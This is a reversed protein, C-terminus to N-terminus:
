ELDLSFRNLAAARRPGYTKDVHAQSVRRVVLDGAALRLLMGANDVYVLSPRDILGERVEFAHATQQTGPLNQKGLPTVILPVLARTDTNYIVFAHAEHPANLLLGPALRAWALDLYVPGVDIPKAPDPLARDLNTTYSSFLVDEKRVVQDTKILPQQPQVDAAPLQTIEHEILENLGNFSSFMDVRTHRVTGDDAFRWVRERVRLGPEVHQHRAGPATFTHEERSVRLSFYGVPTGDLVMEYVRPTDDLRVQAGQQRVRARLKLGREYAEALHEDAAPDYHIELTDIIQEFQQRLRAEDAEADVAGTYVMVWVLSPDFPVCLVHTRTKTGGMKASYSLLAGVRPPLKWTEWVLREADADAAVLKGFEIVWDEFSPLRLPQHGSDDPAGAVPQVRFVLVQLAERGGPGRGRLLGVSGEYEQFRTRDYTWHGPLRLEYGFAADTYPITPQSTPQTSQAAALAAGALLLPLVIPPTPCIILPKM